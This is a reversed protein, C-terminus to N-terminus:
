HFFLILITHSAIEILIGIAIIILIIFSAAMGLLLMIIRGIISELKRDLIQVIVIFALFIIALTNPPYRALITLILYPFLYLGLPFHAGLLLRRVWLRRVNADYVLFQLLAFLLASTLSSTYFFLRLDWAMSTWETFSQVSGIFGLALLFGLPAHVLGIVRYLVRMKIRSEEFSLVM